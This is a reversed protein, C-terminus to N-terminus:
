RYHLGKFIVKAVGIIIWIEILDRSSGILLSREARDADYRELFCFCPVFCATTKISDGTFLPKKYGIM